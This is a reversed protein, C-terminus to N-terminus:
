TRAAEFEAWAKELKHIDFGPERAPGLIISESAIVSRISSGLEPIVEPLFSSPVMAIQM